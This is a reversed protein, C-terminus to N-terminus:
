PNISADGGSQVACCAREPQVVFLRQIWYARICVDSYVAQRHRAHSAGGWWACGSQEEEQGWDNVRDDTLM